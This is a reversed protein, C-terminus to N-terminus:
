PETPPKIARVERLAFVIVGDDMPGPYAGEATVIGVAAIILPWIEIFSCRIIGTTLPALGLAGGYLQVTRADEKWADPVDPHNWAWEWTGSTAEYSGLMQARAEIRVGSDNAFTVVRRGRDVELRETTAIGMACLAEHKAFYSPKTAEVLVEFEPSSLAALTPIGNSSM